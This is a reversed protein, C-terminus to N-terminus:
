SNIENEDTRICYRYARECLCPSLSLFVKVGGVSLAASCRTYINHGHEDDGLDCGRSRRVVITLWGRARIYM